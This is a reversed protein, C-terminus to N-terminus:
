PTNNAGAIAASRLSCAGRLASLEEASSAALFEPAQPRDAWVIQGEGANGSFMQWSDLAVKGAECNALYGLAVSRHPYLTAGTSPDDGLTVLEDYNRLVRVRVLEGATTVSAVELLAIDGGITPAASVSMSVLLASTALLKSIM